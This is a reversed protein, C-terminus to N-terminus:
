SERTSRGAPATNEDAPLAHFTAPSEPELGRELDMALADWDRAIKLWGARLVASAVCSAAAEARRAQYRYRDARERVAREPFTVYM